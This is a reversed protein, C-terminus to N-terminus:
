KQKENIIYIKELFYNTNYHKAYFYKEFAYINTIYILM